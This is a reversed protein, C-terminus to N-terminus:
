STTPSFPTPVAAGVAEETWASAGEEGAAALGSLAGMTRRRWPGTHLQTHRNRETHSQTNSQIQGHTHSVTVSQTHTLGPTHIQPQTLRGRHTNRPHSVLKTVRLSESHTNTQGQSQTPSQQSHNPTYSHTNTATHIGMLTHIFSHMSQTVTGVSPQTHRLPDSLSHHDSGKLPSSQGPLTVPFPPIPLVPHSQSLRPLSAAFVLFGISECM